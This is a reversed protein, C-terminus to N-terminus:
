SCSRKWEVIVLRHVYSLYLKLGLLSELYYYRRYSIFNLHSTFFPGM